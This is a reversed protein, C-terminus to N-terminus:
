LRIGIRRALNVAVAAMGGPSEHEDKLRLVQIPAEPSIREVSGAVYRDLILDGVVLARPQPLEEITRLLDGTM